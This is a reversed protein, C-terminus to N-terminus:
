NFLIFDISLIFSYFEIRRSNEITKDEKVNDIHFFIFYDFM